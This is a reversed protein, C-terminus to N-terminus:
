VARDLLRNMLSASLTSSTRWSSEAVACAARAKADIQIYRRQLDLPPVITSLRSVDTQNISSQNIADKASVCLESRVSDIQLMSILFGPLIRGAHVNLRMMNSEFVAIESIRPIIASKGLFPRSNVRNIVIDGEVLAFKNVTPGDLRVRQWVSPDTVNGERFSDIRLIPTGSGYQSKPRYLGNQPGREILSGLPEVTWGMPNEVPDGFMRVFLAPIFERLRDAAQARLREIKAARNLIGVIRRQEDLPPLPVLTNELFQKPVRQQGATGAFTRKAEDRFKPQRVLYYIYEGLVREGPRLIHFETSGRGIGNTLDRALAAKGNEMCPTIKAFLVDGEEFATYGKSVSRIPRDEPHAIAGEEEDVAAMPVFSVVTDEPYAGRPARPNVTCIEGLPVQVYASM